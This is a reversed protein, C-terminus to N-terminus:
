GDKDSSTVYLEAGVTEPSTVSWSGHVPRRRREFFGRSTWGSHCRAPAGIEVSVASHGTARAAQLLADISSRGVGDIADVSWFDRVRLIDSESRTAFWARLEGAKNSVFLYRTAGFPARDFRWRAYAADRIMVLATGHDSERWLVDMREDARETWEVRLPRSGLRRFGDRAGVALDILAGLIGALPAPLYRGLYRGHRLVRVYGVIEALQALGARKVVAVAKPNPFGYLLDLERAGATILGQQLTLAPGLSRHEPLVAFDVIVGARIERGRWLMRRQGAACVGVWDGSPEHRLLQLLPPPGESGVYFWEYKAEHGCREHGLNGRWISIVTDRVQGPDADHVTYLLPPRAATM